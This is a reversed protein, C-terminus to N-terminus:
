PSGQRSREGKLINQGEVLRRQCCDHKRVKVIVEKVHFDISERSARKVTLERVLESAEFIDSM